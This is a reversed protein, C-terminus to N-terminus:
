RSTAPTPGHTRSAPTSTTRARRPRRTTAHSTASRSADPGSTADTSCSASRRWWPRPRGAARGTCRSIPPSSSARRVRARTPSGAARSVRCLGRRLPAATSGDGVRRGRGGRNWAGIRDQQRRVARNTRPDIRYVEGAVENTAWVAGEGFAIGDVGVAVPITRLIPKPEPDIRWVSGGVPDAAWVAGGGVALATLSAAAVEIRNAVRNTRADIEILDGHVGVVWVDGDGAAISDARVGDIRAVDNTRASIRSVTLDPNIVWVADRTAAMHPRVSDQSAVVAATRSRGSLATTEEIGGSKPDLRSVSGPLATALDRFGNGIWLTAMGAAIDTPTSGTSFTRVLSHQKPEIQSVTRDEADLVWVGGAGAAISVPATGVPVTALREGTRPDLARVYGGTTAAQGDDVPEAGGDDVLRAGATVAVALAAVGALVIAGPHRRSVARRMWPGERRPLDLVPDQQLIRRELQQLGQSPELGVEQALALRGQQYVHLAEAQRDSRYLALMLQGRLRERLPYRAVLAELEGVLEGDRGLALDGEIREELATLRLEDLRAIEAQAFSEYAFDALAPGRWLALARRLLEAAQEPKGDGRARRAEELMDRVRDSDLEGREVMLVYGRGSTRLVGTGDTSGNLAKRLRSVHAQLTKVATAPPAEGWLEDILLDLSVVENAHLLLVALLARQKPGDIEIERGNDSVEFPGLIRYEM